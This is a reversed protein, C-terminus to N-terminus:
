ATCLRRVPHTGYFPSVLIHPFGRRVPRRILRKGYPSYMRVRSFIPQTCGGSPIYGYFLSALTRPFVRRIHIESSRRGTPRSCAFTRFAAGFPVPPQPVCGRATTGDTRRANPQAVAARASTQASGCRRDAAKATRFLFFPASDPFSRNQIVCTKITLSLVNGYWRAYRNAPVPPEESAGNRACGSSGYLLSAPKLQPASFFM